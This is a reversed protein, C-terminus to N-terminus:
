RLVPAACSCGPSRSATPRSSRKSCGRLHMTAIASGGVVPRNGVGVGPNSIRIESPAQAHATGIVSAFLASLLVLLSRRYLKKMSQEKRRPM